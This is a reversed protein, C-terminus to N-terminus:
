QGQMSDAAVPNVLLPREYRRHWHGLARDFIQSRQATDIGGVRVCGPNRTEFPDGHPTDCRDAPGRLRRHETQVSIYTMGREGLLEPVRRRVDEM